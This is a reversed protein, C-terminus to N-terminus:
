NLHDGNTTHNEIWYAGSSPESEYVLGIVGVDTIDAANTRFAADKAIQVEAGPNPYVPTVFVGYFKKALDIEVRFRYKYNAAVPFASPLYEGGNRINVTGGYFQILTNLEGYKATKRGTEAYAAVGNFSGDVEPSFTLSFETKVIGKYPLGLPYFAEEPFAGKFAHPLIATDPPETVGNEPPVDEAEVPPATEQGGSPNKLYVTDEKAFNIVKRWLDKVPFYGKGTMSYEFYDHAAGKSWSHYGETLKYILDENGVYMLADVAKQRAAAGDWGYFLKLLTMFPVLVSMSLYCYDADSRIGNADNTMFEFLMGKQGLFPSNGNNLIYAYDEQGKAGYDNTVVAGYTYQVLNEIIGEIDGLPMGNYVFPIKVGRGSGGANGNTLTVAGGEEIAKKGTRSWITTINKFGAAECEKMFADYDFSTFIENVADAGGFYLCASMLAPLHDCRFNPNWTKEFNGGLSFGTTYNNADNYGWNGMIAAAKMLIGAKGAEEASLENWIVPTLRAMTLSLPVMGTGPYPGNSFMPEKGGSILSRIHELVRDKALVGKQSATKPDLYAALALYFMATSGGHEQPGWGPNGSIDFYVPRQAFSWELAEPTLSAGLNLATIEFTKLYGAMLGCFREDGATDFEEGTIIILGTEDWLVNKGIGEAFARFPAVARNELMQAPADLTVDEGNIKMEESGIRMTIENEETRIGVTQTDAEWIVEAGFSEAIFRVPVLTTGGDLVPTVRPNEDILTLQRNAYAVPNGILLAMGGGIKDIIPSDPPNPDFVPVAEYDESVEPENASLTISDLYIVTDDSVLAPLGWGGTFVMFASIKDWGLPSRSTKFKSFPINILQWGNKNINVGDAYYYDDGDTAPNDSYLCILAKLPKEADGYAWFSVTKYPSFDGRADFSLTRQGSPVWKASYKASKIVTEDAYLGYKAIQAANNCDLVTFGSAAMESASAGFCGSLTLLVLFLATFKISM